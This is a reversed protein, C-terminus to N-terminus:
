RVEVVKEGRDIASIVAPWLVPLRGLLVNRVANGIRIWV